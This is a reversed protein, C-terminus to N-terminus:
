LVPVSLFYKLLGLRLEIPEDNFWVRFTIGCFTSM